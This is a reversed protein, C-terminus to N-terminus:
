SRIPRTRCPEPSRPKLKMWCILTARRRMPTPTPLPAPPCSPLRAAAERVDLKGTVIDATLRTRYEQMLAIERETRAIASDVPLSEAEIWEVIKEQEAALPLVTPFNQLLPLRLSNVTSKASADLAEFRLNSKFYYFFFKGDIQRFNSFKYVRQHYEFKGNVYHFVKGVGAGDGATLVAEGNFSFTDIREVTQSRVYFPYPGDNIRDVTDRSGTKIHALFKLRRVAWHAPIDGLWPIGSPKLPVDPDLGRTVARHIIAQKQENLLGILKRKARIFGDIKRNAHDLFRVIAAQEDPPPALSRMQKFQDWYLRNRDKVIGRSVGDIEGLYLDMRFQARYYHPNTKPFPRAVVYAPSVLGNVPAVGVAGQWMRMMNYAIDGSVARKYKSFDSMLQKRGSTQFNRVRVGTRLSVELVPLQPHDTENRQSFLSGNRLTQWTSPIMPLWPLGSERYEAYPNLGEIMGHHRQALRTKSNISTPLPPAAIETFLPFTLQDYSKKEDIKEVVPSANKDTHFDVVELPEGFLLLSPITPPEVRRLEVGQKIEERLEMLLRGLVNMGVLTGNENPLAGWFDDKRSDEVISMDGTSLLLTSFPKWHMTLKLRLVWRMIKVRVRDWDTRSDNRYPKGVMKATMPSTQAIITRQVEPLHPFRCAQYLAEVTLIRVGNIRVPYGPAMNSLGGFAEATKRFVACDARVYTRFGKDSSM